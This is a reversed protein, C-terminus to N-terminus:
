LIVFTKMEVMKLNLNKVSAGAQMHYLLASSRVTFLVSCAFLSICVCICVPFSLFIWVFNMSYLITHTQGHALERNLDSHIWFQIFDAWLSASTSFNQCPFKEKAGYFKYIYRCILYEYEGVREDSKLKMRINNIKRVLSFIYTYEEMKLFINQKCAILMRTAQITSAEFCKFIMETSETRSELQHVRRISTM